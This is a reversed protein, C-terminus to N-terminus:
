TKPCSTICGDLLGDREGVEEDRNSLQMGSRMQRPTKLFGPFSAWTSFGGQLWFPGAPKSGAWMEWALRTGNGSQKAESLSKPVKGMESKNQLM